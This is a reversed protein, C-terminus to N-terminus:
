IVDEQHDIHTNITDILHSNEKNKKKKGCSIRAPEVDFLSQFCYMALITLNGVSFIPFIATPGVRLDEKEDDRLPARLLRLAHGLPLHFLHEFVKVSLM